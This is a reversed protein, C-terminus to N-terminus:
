FISARQILSLSPAPQFNICFIISSFVKQKTVTSYIFGRFVHEHHVHQLRVSSIAAFHFQEDNNDVIMMVKQLEFKTSICKVHSQRLNEFTELTAVAGQQGSRSKTMFCYPKQLSLRSEPSFHSGLSDSLDSTFHFSQDSMKRQWHFGNIVYNCETYMQIYIVVFQLSGLFRCNSM